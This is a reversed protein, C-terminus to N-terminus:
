HNFYYNILSVTDYLTNQSINGHVVSENQQTSPNFFTLGTRNLNFITTVHPNLAINKDGRSGILSPTTQYFNYNVAVNPTVTRDIFDSGLSFAADVTVLLNVPTNTKNLERAIQLAYNGGLSYGYIFIKSGQQYSNYLNEAAGMVIDEIAGKTYSTPNITSVFLNVNKTVENIIQLSQASLGTFNLDAGGILLLQTMTGNGTNQSAGQFASIFMAAATGSFEVGGNIVNIGGGGGGGSGWGNFGFDNWSMETEWGTHYNGDSGQQIRYNVSTGAGDVWLGTPDNFMVPNNAGFQYPTIGVYSEAMADIGTFRGIQADYNRFYTEYYDVDFSENLETGANYKYSNPTKLAASSKLATISGGFSYYSEESVLPGTFHQVTIDDFYVPQPSENSVYVYLYGSKLLQKLSCLYM